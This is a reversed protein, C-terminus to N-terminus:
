DTEEIVDADLTVDTVADAPDIGTFLHLSQRINM